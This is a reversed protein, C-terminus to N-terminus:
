YRRLFFYVNPNELLAGDKGFYNEENYEYLSQGEKEHVSDYVDIDNDICKQLFQYESNFWYDHDEISENLGYTIGLTSIRSFYKRKLAYIVNKRFTLSYRGKQFYHYFDELFDDENTTILIKKIDDSLLHYQLSLHGNLDKLRNKDFLSNM